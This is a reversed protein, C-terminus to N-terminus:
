PRYYGVINLEKEADKLHKATAKRKWVGYSPFNSEQITLGQKKGDDDVKTVVAVHGVDNGVNIIAVSGKKPKKSNIINLKDQYKYLSHPLSPVLTRAYDVCVGGHPGNDIKERSIEAFAISAVSLCLSLIAVLIKM